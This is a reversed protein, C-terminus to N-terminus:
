AVQISNNYVACSSPNAVHFNYLTNNTLHIMFHPLQRYVCNSLYFYTAKLLSQLDTGSILSYQM